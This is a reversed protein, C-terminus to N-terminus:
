TDSLCFVAASKLEVVLSIFYQQLDVSEKGFRLWLNLQDGGVGTNGMCQM